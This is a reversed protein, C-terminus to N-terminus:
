SFLHNVQNLIQLANITDLEMIMYVHLCFSSDVDLFWSYYQQNMYIIM